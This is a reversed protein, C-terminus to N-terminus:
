ILKDIKTKRSHWTSYPPTYVYGPAPFIVGFFQLLTRLYM